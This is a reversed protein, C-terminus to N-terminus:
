GCYGSFYFEYFNSIEFKIKSIQQWGLYKIKYKNEDGNCFSSQSGRFSDNLSQINGISFCVLLNTISVFCISYMKFIASSFLM